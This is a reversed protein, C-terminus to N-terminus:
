GGVLILIFEGTDASYKKLNKLVRQLYSHSKNGASLRQLCNPSLDPRVYHRDQDPDLSNSVRISNRSPLKANKKKAM